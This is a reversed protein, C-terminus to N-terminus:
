FMKVLLPKIDHANDDIFRTLRQHNMYTPIALIVVIAIIYALKPMRNATNNTRFAPAKGIIDKQFILNIYYAGLYYYMFSVFVSYLLGKQLRRGSTYVSNLPNMVIIGHKKLKHLIGIEDGGQMLKFDYGEFYIKKFATNTATIYIPHKKVLFFLYSFGFLFHTYIKGWWPGDYYRCPGGVAVIQDNKKFVKDIKELWNAKFVTDADTSVIIEGKSIDVGAQRAACVGPTSERVIVVDYKQAILVTNDSCNNDVIIIEYKGKFTQKKLSLLTKEIFLEENYCPIVISFRVVENRKMARNYSM